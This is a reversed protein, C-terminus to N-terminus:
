WECKADFGGLFVREDEDTPSHEVAGIDARAGIERALQRQDVDLSADNDGKDIAPSSHNLSHTSTTGGNDALPNLRPCDSLTGVPVALDLSSGILNNASAPDIQAGDIGWADGGNSRGSRNDAVISSHITLVANPTRLQLGAGYNCAQCQNFAVTSNSMKIPVFAYVGGISGSAVNGSITSNTITAKAGNGQIYLGAAEHSKNRFVTSGVMSVSGAVYAGGAWSYAPATALNDSITTYSAVLGSKAVVGGGYAWDITSRATNSVISSFYLRTEGQTYVAGGGGAYGYGSSVVECHSVVSSALVVSGTSFICGGRPLVEPPGSTDHHGNTITLGEVQLKGSGYHRLVSSNGNADITLQNAGPGQLYLTDLGVTIAPDPFTDSLTIKSCMMPLQTLDITDGSHVDLSLEILSRLSNPSGDDACTDVFHTAAAHKSGRSPLASRSLREHVYPLREVMASMDIPGDRGREGAWTASAACGLAAALATALSRHLLTKAM